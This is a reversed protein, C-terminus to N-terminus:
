SSANVSKAEQKSAEGQIELRIKLAVEAKIVSFTNHFERLDTKIRSWQAQNLDDKLFLMQGLLKRTHSIADLVEKVNKNNTEQSLFGPSQVRDTPNDGNASGVGVSSTETQATTNGTAQLQRGNSSKLIKFDISPCPSRPLKDLVQGWYQATKKYYSPQPRQTGQLCQLVAVIALAELSNPLVRHSHFSKIKRSLPHVTPSQGRSTISLDEWNFRKSMYVQVDQPLHHRFEKDFRDGVLQQISGKEFETWHM